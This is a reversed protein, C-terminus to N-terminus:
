GRIEVGAWEEVCRAVMTMDAEAGYRAQTVTLLQRVANGVIMPVGLEEAAQLCLGADKRSLAVPFGFDFSGSLVFNPIKDTTANCRGSGANIVDVMLKPDLGAKTGLALAESAIALTTVSIINNVVKLTQAMGAREGVHTVNGMTALMPRLTECDASPGSVMIALTGKRAGAIGGSVPADILTIGHKALEAAVEEAVRPGTTSMDVVTRLKGPRALLGDRGTVVERVVAPTPLSLLVTEAEAAVEAPTAARVAGREVAAAVAADSPDAVVLRYQADLLRGAMPAGMNGIGIFGIRESTM